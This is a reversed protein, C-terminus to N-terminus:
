TIRSARHPLALKPELNAMAAPREPTDLRGGTRGWDVGGPGEALWVVFAVGRMSSVPVGGGQGGFRQRSDHANYRNDGVVFM